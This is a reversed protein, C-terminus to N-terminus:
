GDLDMRSVTMTVLDHEAISPRSGLTCLPDMNQQGQCTSSNTSDAVYNEYQLM